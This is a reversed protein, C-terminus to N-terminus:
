VLSTFKKFKKNSFLFINNAPLLDRHLCTGNWPQVALCLFPLGLWSFFCLGAAPLASPPEPCRDSPPDARSNPITRQLHPQWFDWWVSRGFGWCGAQQNQLSQHLEASWLLSCPLAPQGTAWSWLLGPSLVLSPGKESCVPSPLHSSGTREATHCCLLVGQGARPQLCRDTCARLLILVRKEM